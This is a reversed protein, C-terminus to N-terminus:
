REMGTNWNKKSLEEIYERSFSERTPLSLDEKEKTLNNREAEWLKVVVRKLIEWDELNIEWRDKFSSESQTPTEEELISLTTNIVREISNQLLLKKEKNTLM